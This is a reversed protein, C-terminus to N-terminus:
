LSVPFIGYGGRVVTHPLLDYAFGFRPAFDLKNNPVLNRPANRNVAIEPYFDAPLPDTRGKVIDLTTTRINFNAM